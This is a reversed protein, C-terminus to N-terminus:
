SANKKDDDGVYLAERNFFTFFVPKNRKLDNRANKVFVMIFSYVLLCVGFRILETVLPNYVIPMSEYVVNYAAYVGFVPLIYSLQTEEQEDSQKRQLVKMLWSYLFVLLMSGILFSAELLLRQENLATSKLMHRLAIMLVIPGISNLLTKM